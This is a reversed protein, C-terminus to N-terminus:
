FRYQGGVIFGDWAFDIGVGSGADDLSLQYREYGASFGINPTPYVLFQITIQSQSGSFDGVSVSPFGTFEAFISIIDESKLLLNAGLVPYASRFDESVEFANSTVAVTNSFYGVGGIAGVDIWSTSVFLFNYAGHITRISVRSDTILDFPPIDDGLPVTLENVGSHQLGSFSVLFRHRGSLGFDGDVVWGTAGADLGLTEQVDIGDGLITEVPGAVPVDITGNLNGRWMFGSLRARDINVEGIIMEQAEAPAVVVLVALLAAGVGLHVARPGSQGIRRM